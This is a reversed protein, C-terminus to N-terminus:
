KARLAKQVTFPRGSAAWDEALPNIKHNKLTQRSCSAVFHKTM